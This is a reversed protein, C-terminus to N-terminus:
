EIMSNIKEKVSSSNGGEILRQIEMGAMGMRTKTAAPSNPFKDTITGYLREAKDYMKRVSYVDAIVCLATPLDANGAYDGIMRGTTAEAAVIDGKDVQAIAMSMSAWVAFDEGPWNQFVYDCIKITRDFQGASQYTGAIQQLTTGKERSVPIDAILKDVAADAEAIKGSNILSVIQAKAQEIDTTAAGAVEFTPLVIAIIAVVLCVPYLSVPMIRKIMSNGGKLAQQQGHTHTHKM